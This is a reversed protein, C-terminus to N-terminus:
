HATYQPTLVMIRPLESYYLSWEMNQELLKKSWRKGEEDEVKLFDLIKGRTIEVQNKSLLQILIKLM